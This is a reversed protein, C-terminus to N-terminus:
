GIASGSKAYKGTGAKANNYSVSWKEGTNAQFNSVMAPMFKAVYSNLTDTNGLLIEDSTLISMIDDYLMEAPSFMRTGGHTEKKGSWEPEPREEAVYGGQVAFEDLRGRYTNSYLWAFLEAAKVVVEDERQMQRSGDSMEKEMSLENRISNLDIGSTIEADWDKMGQYFTGYNSFIYNPNAEMTFFDRFEDFIGGLGSATAGGVAAAGGTRGTDGYDSSWVDTVDVFNTVTNSARALAKQWAAAYLGELDGEWTPNKIMTAVESIFLDRQLALELADKSAVGKRPAQWETNAQLWALAKGDNRVANWEAQGAASGGPVDLPGTGGGLILGEPQADDEDFDPDMGYGYGLINMERQSLGQEKTTPGINKRAVYARYERDAELADLEDFESIVIPQDNFGALEVKRLVNELKTEAGIKTEEEDLMEIVQNAQEDTIGSIADQLMTYSDEFEDLSDPDDSSMMMEAEERLSLLELQAENYSQEDGFLTREEAEPLGGAEKVAEFRSYIDDVDIDPIELGQEEYEDELREMERLAAKVADEIKLGEEKVRLMANHTVTGKPLEKLLGSFVINAADEYAKSAM